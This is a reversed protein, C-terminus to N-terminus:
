LSYTKLDARNEGGVSEAGIWPNRLEYFPVFGGLRNGYSRSLLDEFWRLAVFGHHGGWPFRAIWSDDVRLFPSEEWTLGHNLFDDKATLIRVRSQGAQRARDIWHTIWVMDPDALLQVAAPSYDNVFSRFRLKNLYDSKQWPLRPIVGLGYTEDAAKAAEVLTAHFGDFAMRSRACGQSSLSLDAETLADGFDRIFGLGTIVGSCVEEYFGAENNLTFDVASVTHNFQLPPGWLTVTGNIVPSGSEADLAAIVAGLFGGYSNGVVDTRVINNAGLGYVVSRAANLFFRAESLVDGPRFGNAQRIFAPNFPNQFVAVHYGRSAYFYVQRWSSDEDHASGLGPFVLMLPARGPQRKQLITTVAGSQGLVRLEKVSAFDSSIGYARKGQIAGWVSANADDSFHQGQRAYTALLEREEASFAATPESDSGLTSTDRDSSCAASMLGICIMLGTAAKMSM